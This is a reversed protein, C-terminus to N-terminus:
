SLLILLHIISNNSCYYGNLRLLETFFQTNKKPIPSYFPLENHNQKLSTNKKYARMNQTGISTPYMGTIISSRSPSCVPSVSFCNEYVEATAALQNINPTLANTDGYPSFFLSQDECVLWLINPSSQAQFGWFNFGVFILTLIVSKSM